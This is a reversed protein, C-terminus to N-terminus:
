IWTMYRTTHYSKKYISFHVCMKNDSNSLQTLDRRSTVSLDNNANIFEFDKIPTTSGHPNNYKPAFPWHIGYVTTAEHSNRVDKFLNPVIIIFRESNFACFVLEPNGHLPSLRLQTQTVEPESPCCGSQSASVWQNIQWHWHQGTMM